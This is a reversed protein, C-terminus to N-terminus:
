MSAASTALTVTFGLMIKARFRLTPFKILRAGSRGAMEVGTKMRFVWRCGAAHAGSGARLTSHILGPLNPTAEPRITAAFGHPNADDNRSPADCCWVRFRSIGPEIDRM